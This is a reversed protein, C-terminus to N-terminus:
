KWPVDGVLMWDADKDEYTLVFESHCLKDILRGKTFDAQGVYGHLSYLSSSMFVPKNKLVVLLNISRIHDSSNLQVRLLQFFHINLLIVIFQLYLM